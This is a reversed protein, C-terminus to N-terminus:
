NRTNLLFLSEKTPRKSGADTADFDAFRVGLKGRKILEDRFKELNAKGIFSDLFASSAYQKDVLASFEYDKPAIGIERMVNRAEEESLIKDLNIKEQRVGNSDGLAYAEAQKKDMAAFHFGGHRDSVKRGSTTGRYVTVEGGAPMYRIDDSGSQFRESLPIINGADDRTIPDASKIQNPDFLVYVSSPRDMSTMKNKSVISDYGQSKLRRIDSATPDLILDEDDTLFPKRVKVKIDYVKGKEGLDAYYEAASRESAAYIVGDEGGAKGWPLSKNFVKIGEPGGHFLDIEYGAAKAAQDVLLQAGKIDGKEAARMYAADSGAPMFMAQGQQVDAKMQPTIDIYHAKFENKVGPPVPLEVAGGTFFTNGTKSYGKSVGVMGVKGGWKKVYRGVTNPLQKDYFDRHGKGGVELDLGSLEGWEDPSEIIKRAIKDSVVDGLDKNGVKRDTIKNGAKDWATIQTFEPSIRDYRTATDGGTIWGMRDYGNDAAWRIMRKIATLRWANSPTVGDEGIQSILPAKGVRNPNSEDFGHRRAASHWDSQIEELFLMRKGDADIRDNFRVHAFVNPEEFHSGLFMGTGRTSPPFMLTLERYSGPEAGPLNLRGGQEKDYITADGSQKAEYIRDNMEIMEEELDRLRQPADPADGREIDWYRELLAQHEQILDGLTDGVEETRLRERVLIQNENIYQALEEKSVKGKRSMLWNDLDMWKIEQMNGGHKLLDNLMAPGTASNRVKPSELAKSTNSYFIDGGKGAPMFAVSQGDLGSTGKGRGIGGVRGSGGAFSKSPRGRISAYLSEAASAYDNAGKPGRVGASEYLEKENYWLLAQLDANELDIGDSKLSEQVAGIRDRIWKRHGGGEPAEVLPKQMKVIANAAKRVEDVKASANDRNKKVTFYVAMKKAADIYRGGAVSSKTIGIQKREAATLADVSLRLRNKADRVVQKSPEKVQTGTNRGVTRMFWRDMTVTSYDGYLNNFFSGLKPGFISAFPIIADINEGSGLSEAQKATFGLDKVASERLEKVTGKRTLWEAAKEPSGLETNVKNIRKLNHRINKVRDGSVFEGSIEGTKKWHEYTNWAQKFQPDVKNGDSTVALFAKFFFDNEKKAIDPDLERLVSMALGLNEDYWGKAEPHIEMAHRVEKGVLDEFRANQEPSAKKFDIPDEFRDQFYKALNLITPNKPLGEPSEIGKIINLAHSDSKEAPMFEAGGKDAGAPMFNQRLKPYSLTYDSDAPQIKLIGQWSRTSEAGRRRPGEISVSRAKESGSVGVLENLREKRALAIAEDYASLGEMLGFHGPRGNRHNERYTAFDALFDSVNEDWLDLKTKRNRKNTWRDINDQLRNLNITRFNVNGDLTIEVGFPSDQRWGARKATAGTIGRYFVEVTKGAKMAEHFIKIQEKKNAPIVNDPLAMIAEVQADNMIPATWGEEGGGWRVKGTREDAQRQLGGSSDVLQLAEDIAKIRERQLKRVERSSLIVPRGDPTLKPEGTTPDKVVHDDGKFMEMLLPNSAMEESTPVMVENNEAKALIEAQEGINKRLTVYDKLLQNVMPNSTAWEGKENKFLPSPAGDEGFQVKFIKELAYRLKGLTSYSKALIIQRKVNAVLSPGELLAGPDQSRYMSSFDEARIESRVISQFKANADFGEATVERTDPALNMDGLKKNVSAKALQYQEYAAAYDPDKPDMKLLENRQADVGEWFRALYQNGRDRQVDMSYIGGDGFMVSNINALTTRMADSDVHELAHMVEHALSAGDNIEAKALNVIVKQSDRDYYGAFDEKEAFIYEVPIDGKGTNGGFGKVILELEAARLQTELPLNKLIYVNDKLVQAQETLGAKEATAAEQEKLGLWEDITNKAKIQRQVGGMSSPVAFAFGAGLGSGIGGAIMDEDGTALSIAGGAVGGKATGSMVNYGYEFFPDAFQLKGAVNRLWPAANPDNFIKAATGQLTQGSSTARGVAELVDGAGGVISSAAAAPTMVFDAAGVVRKPLGVGIADEVYNSAAQPARSFPAIIKEDVGKLVKGTGEAAKSAVGRGAVSRVAGKTLGQRVAGVAVTAPADGIYSLGLALDKNVLGSFAGAAGDNGADRLAQSILPEKGLRAREMEAMYQHKTMWSEVIRDRRKEILPKIKDKWGAVVDEPLGTLLEDGKKPIPLNNAKRYRLAENALYNNVSQDLKALGGDWNAIAMHGIMATGHGAQAVGEGMSALIRAPFNALTSAAVKAQATTSITKPRDFGDFISDYGLKKLHKRDSEPVSDVFESWAARGVSEAIPGFMEETIEQEGRQGGTMWQPLKDYGLDKVKKGLLSAMLQGNTVHAKTLYEQARKELTGGTVGRGQPMRAALRMSARDPNGRQMIGLAQRLERNIPSEKGLNKHFGEILPASAGSAFDLSSRVFVGRTLEDLVTGMAPAIGGMMKGYDFGQAEKAEIYNLVEDRSLNQMTEGKMLADGERKEFGTIFELRLDDVSEPETNAGITRGEKAANLRDQYTFTQLEPEPTTPDVEPWDFENSKKKEDTDPWNFGSQPRTTLEM